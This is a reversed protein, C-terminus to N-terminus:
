VPLALLPMDREFLIRHAIGPNFFRRFANMKKNPVILLELGKATSYDEMEERFSKAKFVKYSFRATPYNKALYEQLAKVKTECKESGLENVPVLTIDVEPFDFMRMLTDVSLIDRQTLTCFFALRRIDAVGPFDYHEPVAFVPVRCSDLVEATVSGIMEEEKKDKGRTAMVILAPPTNKSYNIIVEEPLGEELIQSFKIDPLLGKHQAEYINRIFRKMSKEAEDKVSLSIEAENINMFESDPSDSYPLPGGLYPTVYTHLLVPTLGLREAMSFGVMCSLSSYDSFDVPILINGNVGDAIQLSEPIIETGSEVIKLALPLDGIRIKVRLGYNVSASDLTIKEFHSEISHSELVKKLAVAHDYTHIALTVYNDM